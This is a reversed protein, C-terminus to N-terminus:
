RLLFALQVVWTTKKRETRPDTLYVECRAAFEEGDPSGSSDTSLGRDKVWNLLLRNAPLSTRRYDLLAYRGAPIESSKVRDDTTAADSVVGVEVDMSGAMDVVHLRLFFPGSTEIDHEALWGILEALMRDRNALMTRFPVIERIGLTPQQARTEVRPGEVIDVGRDSM